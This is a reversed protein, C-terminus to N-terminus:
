THIMLYIITTLCLIIFSVLGSNFVYDVRKRNYIGFCSTLLLAVPAFIFTGYISKRISVMQTRGFIRRPIDLMPSAYLIVAEGQRFNESFEYSVGVESGRDTKIVWWSTSGNRSRTREVNVQQIVETTIRVPLFFDAALFLSIVFTIHLTRTALPVFNGMLELMREKDGKRVVQPGKRRYAPDRHAPRIEEKVIEQIPNNLLTDYIGKQSRDGLVEYAENIEKFVQEASPDPNKDPHFQIALRRYSKKIEAINAYRSVNLIAYYDKM